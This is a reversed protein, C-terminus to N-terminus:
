CRSGFHGNFMSLGFTGRRLTALFAYEAKTGAMMVECYILHFVNRWAPDSQDNAAKDVSTVFDQQLELM